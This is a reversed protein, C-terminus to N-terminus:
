GREQLIRAVVIGVNAIIDLSAIRLDDSLAAVDGHGHFAAGIDGDVELEGLVGGSTGYKKEGGDEGKDDKRM